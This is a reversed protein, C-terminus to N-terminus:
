SFTWFRQPNMLYTALCVIWYCSYFLPAPYCGTKYTVVTYVKMDNSFISTKRVAVILVPIRENKQFTQSDNISCQTKTLPYKQFFADIHITNKWISSPIIRQKQLEKISKLAQFYYLWLWTLFTRNGHLPSRACQSSCCM